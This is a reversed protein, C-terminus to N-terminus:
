IIPINYNSKQTSFLPTVMRNEISTTRNWEHVETWRKHCLGKLQHSTPGEEKSHMRLYPSKQGKLFFHMQDVTM